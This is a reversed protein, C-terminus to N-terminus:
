PPSLGMRKLIDPYIESQAPLAGPQACVHAAFETAAGLIEPMPRNEIIGAALVAAFADGAGVTDRVAVAPPPPADYRRGNRYVTSGRAGCTMALTEIQYNDVLHDVVAPGTSGVELLDGVIKLEEDNLKLINAQQLCHVIRKRDYHPARLNIDCFCRTAQPRATLMQQIEALGRDSRQALSGFYILDAQGPLGQASLAQLDIFDYAAPAVIDFSPVGGAELAVEVRGTPHDADIQIDATSLDHEAIMGCIRRGDPDDGVRTVLRVAAGLHHLHFAFNLPAGGIRHYTPFRDILVEGVVLVM